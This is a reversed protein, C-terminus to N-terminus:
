RLWHPEGSDIPRDHDTPRASGIPGGSGMPPWPGIPRGPAIPDAPGIPARPDNGGSSCNARSAAAAPQASGLDLGARGGEVQLLGRVPRLVGCLLCPLARVPQRVEGVLGLFPGHARLVGGLLRRFPGFRGLLLAHLGAGLRQLFRGVPRVLLGVLGLFRGHLRLFPGLHGPVGDAVRELVDVLREAPGGTRPRFVPPGHGSAPRQGPGPRGHM